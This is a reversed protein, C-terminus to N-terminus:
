TYSEYAEFTLFFNTIRGASRLTPLIIKNLNIATLPKTEALNASLSTRETRPSQCIRFPKVFNLPPICVKVFYNSDKCGHKASFRLVLSM